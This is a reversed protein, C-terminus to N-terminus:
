DGISSIKWKIFVTTTFGIDEKSEVKYKREKGDDSAIRLTDGVKVENSRSYFFGLEFSGSFGDDAAFFDDSEFLGIITTLYEGEKGSNKGHVKSYRSNKPTERYIQTDIGYYFEIHELGRAANDKIVKEVNNFFGM